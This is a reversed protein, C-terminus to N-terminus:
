KTMPITVWMHHAASVSCPYVQIGPMGLQSAHQIATLFNYHRLKRRCNWIDDRTIPQKEGLRVNITDNEDDPGSPTAVADPTPVPVAPGTVPGTEHLGAVAVEISQEAARKLGTRSILDRARVRGNRAQEPSLASLLGEYQQQLVTAYNRDTLGKVM